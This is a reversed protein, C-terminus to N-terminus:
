LCILTQKYEGGDETTVLLRVTKKVTSGDEEYVVANVVEM